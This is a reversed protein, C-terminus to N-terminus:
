REVKAADLRTFDRLNMWQIQPFGDVMLVKIQPAKMAESYGSKTNNTFVAQIQYNQRAISTDEEMEFDECVSLEDFGLTDIPIWATDSSRYVIYSDIDFGEQPEWVDNNVYTSDSVRVMCITPTYVDAGAPFLIINDMLISEEEQVVFNSIVYDEFGDQSFIITLDAPFYDYLYGTTNDY